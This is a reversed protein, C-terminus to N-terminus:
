RRDDLLSSKSGDRLRRTLRLDPTRLISIEALTLISCGEELHGGYYKGAPDMLSIHVHPEYDAIIGSFHVVELPGDIQFFENTPPYDNSTVIHIHGHTLSGLGTLMIGDQIDCDRCVDRISELLLDDHGLSIVVVGTEPSEFYKTFQSPMLCGGVRM